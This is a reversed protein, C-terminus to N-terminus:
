VDVPAPPVRINRQAHRCIPGGQTNVYDNLDVFRILSGNVLVANPASTKQTSGLVTCQPNGGLDKLTDLVAIAGDEEFAAFGCGIADLMLLKAQNVAAAPIDAARPALVWEAMKEIARPGHPAPAKAM